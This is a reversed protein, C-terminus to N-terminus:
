PAAQAREGLAPQQLQATSRQGDAAALQGLAPRGAPAHMARATAGFGAAEARARLAQLGLQRQALMTGPGADLLNRIAQLRPITQEAQRRMEALASQVDKAGKVGIDGYASM